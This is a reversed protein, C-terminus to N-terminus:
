RIRCIKKYLLTDRDSIQLDMHYHGFYWSQYSLRTQIDELYDTLMDRQFGSLTEQISSPACHTVVCDVKWDHKRLNELGHDMEAQSPLEQEWWSKGRIRYMNRGLQKLQKIKRKLEPDGPDLIGDTVDHSRAGGFAFLTLGDLEYIEGRLLMYVSPRIEKAYGGNWLVTQFESSMLRDYNEHNGPVFVTTFSRNNLEDLNGREAKLRFADETGFWIGGFDGAIIVIDDKSLNEQEPFRKRTFRSFDSHTDGTIFIM